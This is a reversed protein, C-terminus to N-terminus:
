AGAKAGTDAIYRDIVKELVDLPLAGNALVHNHFTKLDFREGLAQQARARLELIKLMGVKYACAQGPNVIYREIETTVEDVPMGTNSTMYDIAQQRTWRKYHIGTDVVLRVARFLEAQLRGLNDYPDKQFGQEWALQEAYLAWGETYATFLPMKRFTPGKIEQQIAIQFHHGPIAEHYALTRMGFKALSTMDRLNAYFTGPRSGDLAPMQYYAGPAGDQRFEPIREVAVSAAPRLDFVANMGADVEEIISRYGALCEERGADDDTFLFRPDRSLADMREGVSGDAIGEGKLIADMEGQIRATEALGLTHVEEPTLSTTTQSRLAYAYFADGNPLRWVGDDTTAVALQTQMFVILEAYAPYVADKLAAACAELLRPKDEGIMSIADLKESFTIYMPNQEPPTSTLGGMESLVREIVFKPPVIGADQRLKLGAIVQQFKVPFKKLRTIYNEGDAVSNVQHINIMFDPLDNQVGFLQNIPYNHRLFPEGAVSEALFYDLIDYSMQQEPSLGDYDYARLTALDRKGKALMEEDRSHSVDTLDDSHFNLGLPEFIRLNSLLEPDKLVVELFVREYFIDISFPKFWVVNVMAAGAVVLALVAVIGLGKLVRKM